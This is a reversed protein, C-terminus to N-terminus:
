ADEDGDEDKRPTESPGKEVPTEGDDESPLVQFIVQLGAKKEGSDATVDVLLTERSSGFFEPWRRSLMWQATAVRMPSLKSRIAKAPDKKSRRLGTAAEVIINVYLEAGMAKARRCADVFDKYLATPPRDKDKGEGRRLWGHITSRAVGCSEGALELPMGKHLKSVIQKQLAPTLKSPRGTRDATKPNTM